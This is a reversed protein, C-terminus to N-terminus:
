SHESSLRYSGLVDTVFQGPVYTVCLAPRMGQFFTDGMSNFCRNTLRAPLPWKVMV